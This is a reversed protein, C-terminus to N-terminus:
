KIVVNGFMHAIEFPKVSHFLAYDRRRVEDTPNPLIFELLFSRCGEPLGLEEFPISLIGTPNPLTISNIKEVKPQNLFVYTVEEPCRIQPALVCSGKHYTIAPAIGFDTEEVSFMIEGECPDVPLATCVTVDKGEPAKIILKNDNAAFRIDETINNYFNVLKLPTASKIDDSIIHDLAIYKFAHQVSPDQSQVELAYKGAQLAIDYEFFASEGPQLAFDKPSNDYIGLNVPSIYLRVNGEEYNDSANTLTVGAKARYLGDTSLTPEEIFKLESLVKNLMPKDKPAIYNYNEVFDLIEVQCEEISSAYRGCYSFNELTVNKIGANEDFGSIRSPTPMIYQEEVLAINKITIDHIGGKKADKNWVSDTIRIDFLQGGHIDELRIDDMLIDSVVARDGHHIGMMPYGTMSHIIDINKFRVNSVSDARLEVGVELPRAFDNWLVSDRYEINYVDGSDFAKCVFSDDWTRTFIREVLVNRSGCIDIGDTNGRWGIININDIHCNDCGFFACNWNVSNSLTIDYINVNKCNEALILHKDFPDHSIPYREKTIIGHGCITVNETNELAIRGHLKAGEDIIILTNPATVTYRGIIHDGPAFRIVNNFDAENVNHTDSAFVLLNNLYSGNIELSFKKPETLEIEVTHDDIIKPTMKYSLPRIIASTVPIESSIVLKGKGDIPFLVFEQKSPENYPPQLITSTKIPKQTGNWAVNYNMDSKRETRPTYKQSSHVRM